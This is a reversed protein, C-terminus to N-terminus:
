PLIAIAEIEVLFEPFALRSVQLWASSAPLTHGQYFEARVPMAEEKFRDIDTTFIAEKIVDSFTAGHAELIRQLDEYIRRTQRSMDGVAVLEGQNDISVTGSIYLTNGVTVAQAYGFNKTFDKGHYFVKKNSQSM